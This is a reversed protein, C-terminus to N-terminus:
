PMNIQFTNDLKQKYLREMQTNGMQSYYYVLASLTAADGSHYKLSEELIKIAKATDKEAIAVAYVYQLHANTKDLASAKELVEIGKDKQNNRIYWLGLSELLVGSDKVHSLGKNIIDFSEKEKGQDQLFNAYNVYAPVYFKQIRMAEEYAKEAKDMEEINTYYGALVTQTEARDSLFDLSAKYEGLAKVYNEQEDRTLTSRDYQMMIRAAEIRVSRIPDELAKLVEKVVYRPPFSQLSQLASIRIMPDNSGLMQVSTTYTQRSPYDGLNPVITAKAIDPAGSMLVSYIDQLASDKGKHASHLAHSFDQHGKPIDGYWQKMAKTSWSNSKDKHCNNCANPTKLEDSLDPRPVRFSHDNREDVGMYIRSPMHCAICSASGKKHKTHEPRDYDARVHCKNCVNDGVGDRQLSHPDHCDSCTVGAEYMKSQVFSGYVYVEDKIKGDAEYLQELLNLPRYNDHFSKATKFDDGFQVRRSHCKACMQVETRDIEGDLTPKHTKADIKWSHKKGLDKLGKKLTDDYAKPNKAWQIHESGEGHCEECSVNIQAYTTNYSKTRPDYNKKLNTSHCDACMFNWNFNPGTWHLVDDSTVNDDKHIHFWRQGGEKKSRSDWAIDLVQIKGQPFKVMYQQLPYVGFVFSVEYDHLKGDAGDTKIIFQEGEKSFSTVFGNYNFQAKNFDGLVTQATAEQMALDHHSGKWQRHEDKHCTQCSQDGVYAAHLFLPILFLFFKL